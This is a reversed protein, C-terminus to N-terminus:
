SYKATLYFTVSKSFVFLIMGNDSSQNSNFLVIKPSSDKRTEFSKKELNNNFSSKKNALCLTFMTYIFVICVKWSM